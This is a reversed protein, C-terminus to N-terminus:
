SAPSVLKGIIGVMKAGCHCYPFNKLNDHEDYIVRGCESCEYNHSLGYPSKERIWYGKKPTNANEARLEKYKREISELKDAFEYLARSVERTEKIVNSLNMETTIEYKM